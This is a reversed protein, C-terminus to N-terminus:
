MERKLFVDKMDTYRFVPGDKCVFYPGLQCRGCLGIGCKMNREMSIFINEYAVGKKQLELITFRMMIEPGCIMVTCHLPDFQARPILRTVVGVNGRWNDPARDVTVLIEMDFRSRWKELEKKYLIDDPTRAGYLLAVKGYDGRNRLLHYIVPRLPAIGIGGSIILVDQTKSKEVPWSTGYPGRVGVIDGKKLNCIVNTVSGVKRVTHIIKNTEDRDGSISIPVEGAGFIYLMNFQGPLFAFVQRNDSEMELTYTDGTEKIIRKINYPYPIMPSETQADNNKNITKVM